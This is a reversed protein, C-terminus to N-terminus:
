IPAIKWAIKMQLSKFLVLFDDDDDDDEKQNNRKIRM